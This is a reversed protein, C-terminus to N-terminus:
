PRCRAPSRSCRCPRQFLRLGVARRCLQQIVRDTVAFQARGEDVVVAGGIDHCHEPLCLRDFPRETSRGKKPLPIERFLCTNKHVIMLQLGEEAHCIRFCGDHVPHPSKPQVLLILFFVAFHLAPLFLPCSICLDRARKKSNVPTFIRNGTYVFLMFGKIIFPLLLQRIIIGDISQTAQRKFPTFM